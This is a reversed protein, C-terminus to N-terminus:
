LSRLGELLSFISIKKVFLKAQIYGKYYVQHALNFCTSNNTGNLGM